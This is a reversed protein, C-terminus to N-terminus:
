LEIKMRYYESQEDKFGLNRYLKHGDETSKLEVYDLNKLKADELLNNMLQKAIGCRRYNPKVYVNLVTGTRGNIFNPNSPKETVLLFCCGVPEEGDHAMYVFFDKGMHERYYIPLREEIIDREEEKIGGIDAELYDIRFRTLQKIDEISAKSYTINM